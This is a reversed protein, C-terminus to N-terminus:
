RGPSAQSKRNREDHQTKRKLNEFGAENGAKTFRERGSFKPRAFANFVTERHPGRKQAYSSNEPLSRPRLSVATIGSPSIRSFHLVSRNLILDVSNRNKSARPVLLSVIALFM